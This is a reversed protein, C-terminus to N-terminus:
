FSVNRERREKKIGAYNMKDPEGKLKGLSSLPPTNRKNILERIIESFSKDKKLRKLHEYVESDIMITKSAM